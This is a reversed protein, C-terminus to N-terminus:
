KDNKDMVLLQFYEKVFDEGILEKFNTKDATQIAM